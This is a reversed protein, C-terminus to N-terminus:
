DVAIGSSEIVLRWKAVESRYFADFQDSNGTLPQFGQAALATRTEPMDLAQRTAASLHDILTRPTGMPALLGSWWRTDHQPFGAEIMTPLEPLAPDRKPGTTALGIL